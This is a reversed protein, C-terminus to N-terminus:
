SRCQVRLRAASYLRRCVLGVLRYVYSNVEPAFRGVVVSGPTRFHLPYPCKRIGEMSVPRTVVVTLEHQHAVAGSTVAVLVNLSSLLCSGSSKCTERVTYLSDVMMRVGPSIM